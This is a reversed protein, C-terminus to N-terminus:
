WTSQGLLGRLFLLAGAAGVGIAIAALTNAGIFIWLVTFVACLALGFCGYWMDTNMHGEKGAALGQGLVKEPGTQLQCFCM